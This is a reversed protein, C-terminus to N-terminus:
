YSFWILSCYVYTLVYPLGPSTTVHTVQLLPSASLVSLALCYPLLINLLLNSCPMYLMVHIRRCAM